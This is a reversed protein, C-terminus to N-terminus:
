TAIQFTDLRQSTEEQITQQLRKLKRISDEKDVNIAQQLAVLASLQQNAQANIIHQMKSLRQMTELQDSNIEKQLTGLQESMKANMTERLKRLKHGTEEKCAEISQRLKIQQQSKQESVAGKLKCLIHATELKVKEGSDGMKDDMRDDGWKELSEFLRHLSENSNPNSIPLQPAQVQTVELPKLPQAEVYKTTPVPTSDSTSRKRFILSHAALMVCYFVTFPIMWTYVM